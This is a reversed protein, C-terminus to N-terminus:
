KIRLNRMLRRLSKWKENDIANCHGSVTWDKCPAAADCVFCYCLQCYSEHPTKDFPNKLCLHRSHPYDRCAVKGREAIVTLDPADGTNHVKSPSLRFIGDPSDNFPDFDLIFCDERDEIERVNEKKKVCFIPTLPSGPSEPQSCPSVLDIVECGKGQDQPLEEAKLKSEEM